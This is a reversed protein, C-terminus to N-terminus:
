YTNAMCYHSGSDSGWFGHLFCSLVATCVHIYGWYLHFHVKQDEWIGIQTLELGLTTRQSGYAHINKCVHVKVCM